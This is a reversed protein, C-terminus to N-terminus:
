CKAVDDLDDVVADEREVRYLFVLCSRKDLPSEHGWPRFAILVSPEYEVAHESM